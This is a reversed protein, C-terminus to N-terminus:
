NYTTMYNNIQWIWKSENVYIWKSENLKLQKLSDPEGKMAKCVM